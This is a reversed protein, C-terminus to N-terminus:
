LCKTYSTLVRSQYELFESEFESIGVLIALLEPSGILGMFKDPSITVRVRLLIYNSRYSLPLAVTKCVSSSKELLDLDVFILSFLKLPIYSSGTLCKILNRNSAIGCISRYYLQIICPDELDKSKPKLGLLNVLIHLRLELTSCNAKLWHPSPELGEPQVLIYTSM